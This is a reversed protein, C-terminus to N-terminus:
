TAESVAHTIDKGGEWSCLPVRPCAKNEEEKRKGGCFKCKYKLHVKEYAWGM